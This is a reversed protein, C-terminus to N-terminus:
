LQKLIKIYDETFQIAADFDPSNEGIYISYEIDDYNWKIYYNKDVSTPEKTMNGEMYNGNIKKNYEPCLKEVVRCKINNINVEKVLNMKSNPNYKSISILFEHGQNDVYLSHVYRKMNYDKLEEFTKDDDIAKMFKDKMDQIDKYKIDYISIGARPTILGENSYEGIKEPFNFAFGFSKEMENKNSDTIAVGGINHQEIIEDESREVINGSEDPIFITRFVEQAAARVEPSITFVGVISFAACCATILAARKINKIKFYSINTVGQEKKNWADNFIDRSAKIDNASDDIASKILSDLKNNKNM